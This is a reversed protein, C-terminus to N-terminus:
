QQPDPRHLPGRGVTQRVCGSRGTWTRPRGLELFSPHGFVVAVPCDVPATSIYNLLTVRADARLVNAKALSVYFKNWNPNDGGYPPHFNTRGGALVYRWVNEAYPQVEPNHLVHQVLASQWWKEALATRLCFPTIEDTQALDRPVIWWDLGNFFAEATNPYPQWTPHTGFLANQGFIRKTSQYHSAEVEANRLRFMETYHHVAAVREPERGKIGRFMLFLDKVLDRGPQRQAYAAAMGPSFFLNAPDAIGAGVGWEDKCVGALPADAYQQLIDRDFELLRPSFLDATRHDFVVMICVTRGRDSPGCAIALKVAKADAQRIQCRDTIDRISKAETGAPTALYSYARLLRGSLADCNGYLDGMLKPSVQAEITGSDAMAVESLRVLQQMEQPYKAWFAKRAIRADLDMVIGLDRTRAYKAAARIQDHVKPDTVEAPYRISTTLLRIASHKYAEDLFEKYGEPTFEQGTWFWCGIEPWSMKIANHEQNPLPVQLSRLPAVDEATGEKTIMTLGIAAITAFRSLGLIRTCYM